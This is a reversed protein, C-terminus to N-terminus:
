HVTAIVTVNGSKVAYLATGLLLIGFADDVIVFIILCTIRFSGVESVSAITM